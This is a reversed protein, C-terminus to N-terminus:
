GNWKRWRSGNPQNGVLLEYVWTPCM